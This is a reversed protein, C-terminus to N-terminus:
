VTLVVPQDPVLDSALKVRLDVREKLITLQREEAARDQTENAQVRFEFEAKAARWQNLAHEAGEIRAALDRALVDAEEITGRKTKELITDTARGLAELLQTRHQQAKHMRELDGTKQLVQLIGNIQDVQAQIQEIQQMIAQTERLWSECRRINM